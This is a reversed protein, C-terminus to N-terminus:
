HPLNSRPPGPLKDADWTVRLALVFVAAAVGALVGGLTTLGHALAAGSGTALVLAGCVILAKV